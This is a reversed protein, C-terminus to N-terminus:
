KKRDANYIDILQILRNLTKDRKAEELSEMISVNLQRGHYLAGALYRPSYVNVTQSILIASIICLWLICRTRVLKWRLDDLVINTTRQRLFALLRTVLAFVRTLGSESTPAMM